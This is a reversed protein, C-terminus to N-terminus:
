FELSFLMRVVIIFLSCCDSPGRRPRAMIFVVLTVLIRGSATRQAGPATTRVAEEGPPRGGVQGREREGGGWSPPLRLCVSLM